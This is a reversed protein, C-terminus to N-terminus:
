HSGFIHAVAKELLLTVSRRYARNGDRDTMTVFSVKCDKAVKKNLERLKGDVMALLITSEYKDQYEMALTQLTAEDSVTNYAVQGEPLEVMVNYEQM